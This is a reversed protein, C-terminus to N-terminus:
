RQRPRTREATKPLIDEMARRMVMRTWGRYLKQQPPLSLCFEVLRKDWFPYRKEISFAAAASDHVELAFPQMPQTLIRFHGDREKRASNSQTKRWAKHRAAMNIKGAFVPNLWDQWGSAKGSVEGNSHGARRM